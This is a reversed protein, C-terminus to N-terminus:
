DDDARQGGQAERARWTDPGRHFDLERPVPVGYRPPPPPPSWEPEDPSAPAPLPRMREIEWVRDHGRRYAEIADRYLPRTM